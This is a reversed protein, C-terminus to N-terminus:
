RRMMQTTSLRGSIERTANRVIEAYESLREVGLRVIPASISLAGIPRGVTDTICSAVCMIGSEHEENDVAFGRRHIERLEVILADVTTITTPTFRSLAADEPFLSRVDHESLQALLAKGLGTCYSPSRRGIRSFMRLSHESDIKDIYVVDGDDLVGYHVTERTRVALNELVPRVLVVEDADELISSGLEFLKLSLGYGSGGRKQVLKRQKLTALLHYVSARPIALERALERVSMTHNHALLEILAFARDVTQLAGKPQEQTRNM